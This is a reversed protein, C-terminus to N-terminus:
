NWKAIIIGAYPLILSATYLTSAIYVNHAFLGSSVHSLSVVCAIAALLPILVMLFIHHHQTLRNLDSILVAFSCGLLGAVLVLIAYFIATPIVQGLLSYAYPVGIVAFLLLVALLAIVVRGEPLPNYHKNLHDIEKQSWGAEQLQKSM